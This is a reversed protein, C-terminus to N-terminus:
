AWGNQAVYRVAVPVRVPLPQRAHWPPDVHHVREFLDVANAGIVGSKELRRADLVHHRESGDGVGANVAIFAVIADRLSGEGHSARGTCELQDRLM